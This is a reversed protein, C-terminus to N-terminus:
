KGKRRVYMLCLSLLAAVLVSSLLFFEKTSDTM